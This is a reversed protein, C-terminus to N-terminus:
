WSVDWIQSIGEQASSSSGSGVCRILTVNACCHAGPLDKRFGSGEVADREARSIPQVAIFTPGERRLAPLRRSGRTELHFVLIGHVQTWENDKVV